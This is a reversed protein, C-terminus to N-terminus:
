ASSDDMDSAEDESVPSNLEIVDAVLDVKGKYDLGLFFNTEFGAPTGKPYVYEDDYLIDNVQQVLDLCWNGDYIYYNHKTTFDVVITRSHRKVGELKEDDDDDDDDLAGDVLAGDDKHKAVSVSLEVLFMNQTMASIEEPTLVIVPADTSQPKVLTAMPITLAPVPNCKTPNSSMM